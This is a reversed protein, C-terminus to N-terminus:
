PTRGAEAPASVNGLADVSFIEYVYGLGDIATVDLHLTKQGGAARAVRSAVVVSAGRKLVGDPGKRDLRRKVIFATVSPDAPGSWEISAGEPTPRWGANAPAAASAKIPRAEIASTRESEMDSASRALLSYSYAKDFDLGRDAFELETKAADHAVVGLPSKPRDSRFVVYEKVSEFTPNAAFRVNIRGDEASDPSASLLNPVSPRLTSPVEVRARKWPGVVGWRNVQAIEYDYQLATSRPVFDQKEFAAPGVSGLDDWTSSASDPGGAVLRRRVRFKQDKLMDSPTWAITARGGHNRAALSLETPRQARLFKEGMASGKLGDLDRAAMGRPTFGAIRTAGAGAGLAGRPDAPRPAYAFRIPKLKGLDPHKFDLVGSMALKRAAVDTTRTGSAAPEPLAEFGSLRVKTVARPPRPDPIGVVGADAPDSRLGSQVYQAVVFYRYHRDIECKTDTFARLRRLPSPVAGFRREQSATPLAYPPVGDLLVAADGDDATISDVSVPSPTLLEASAFPDSEPDLAPNETDLRYISYAIELDSPIGVPEKWLITVSPKMKAERISAAWKDLSTRGKRLTKSSSAAGSPEPVELQARAGIPAPPRRWDELDITLETAASRRGFGDVLTLRYVLKQPKSAEDTFFSKSEGEEPDAISIPSENARQWKPERDRASAREVGYTVTLLDEETDASVRNWRMLVREDEQFAVFGDPTPPAPDAGAVIAVTALPEKAEKGGVIAYLAYTQKKGVPVDRDVAALGLKMADEFRLAAFLHLQSRAEIAREAPDVVARLPLAPVAVAPRPSLIGAREKEVKALADRNAKTPPAKRLSLTEGALKRLRGFELAASPARAPTFDLRKESPLKTSALSWARAQSADPGLIAGLQADDICDIRRVLRGKALNALRAKMEAPIQIRGGTKGQSLQRRTRPDLAATARPDVKTDLDSVQYLAFGEAPFWGRGIRWALRVDAQRGNVVSAALLEVEETTAAASACPVLLGALVLGVNLGIRPIHNRM